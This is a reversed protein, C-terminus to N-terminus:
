SSQTILKSRFVCVSCSHWTSTSFKIIKVTQLLQETFGFLQIEDLEGEELVNRIHTSITAKAKGYLECIM